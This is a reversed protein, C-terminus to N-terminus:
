RRSGSAARRGVDSGEGVVPSTVNPQVSPNPTVPAGIRAGASTQAPTAAPTATAPSQVGVKGPAKLPERIDGSALDGNPFQSMFDRVIEPHKSKMWEVFQKAM